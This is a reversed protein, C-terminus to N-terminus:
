ASSQMQTHRGRQLSYLRGPLKDTSSKAFFITLHASWEKRVSVNTLSCTGQNKGAVAQEFQYVALNLLGKAALIDTQVTSAPTFAVAATAALVPAWVTSQFRMKSHSPHVAVFGDKNVQFTFPHSTNRRSRLAADLLFVNLIQVESDGTPARGHDIPQKTYGSIVAM